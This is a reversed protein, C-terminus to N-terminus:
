RAAHQLSHRHLTRQLDACPMCRRLTSAERRPVAKPSSRGGLRQVDLDRRAVYRHPATRMGFM